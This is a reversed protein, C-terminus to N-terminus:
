AEMYEFRRSYHSKQYLKIPYGIPACKCSLANECRATSLVSALVTECRVSRPDRDSVASKFAAVTCSIATAPRACCITPRSLDIQVHFRRHVSFRDSVTSPRRCCLDSVAYKVTIRTRALYYFHQYEWQPANRYAEGELFFMCSHMGIHTRMATIFVAIPERLQMRGYSKGMHFNMQLLEGHHSERATTSQGRFGM